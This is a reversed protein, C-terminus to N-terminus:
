KSRSSKKPGPDDAPVWSSELEKGYGAKRQAEDAADLTGQVKAEDPTDALVTYGRDVYLQHRPTNEDAWRVGGDKARFWTM